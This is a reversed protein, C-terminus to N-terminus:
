AGVFAFAAWAQPHAYPRRAAWSERLRPNAPPSDVGPAGAAALDRNTLDRVRQQARRLAQAPEAHQQQWERVFYSMLLLTSADPVQWLSGIVAACGAQLLGAPLSVVEDPLAVGIVASECASLIALRAGPLRLGLIDRLTLADRGALLLGGALPDFLDARGHCAFHLADFHALADLVEQKTAEAAPIYRGAAFAARVLEAERDGYRLPEEGAHDPAGVTLVSSCKVQDALACSAKLARANPAYSILVDDLAYSRGTAAAPDLRAAAHIPLLGLLGSPILVVRDCAGAVELVAPWITKGLWDTVRTLEAQWGDPKQQRQQSATIFSAVERLATAEDVEPLVRVVAQGNARVAAAVMGESGSALYVIPCRATRAAGAVDAFNPRALFQEHGPV